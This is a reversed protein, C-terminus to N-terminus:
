RTPEVPSDDPLVLRVLRVLFVLWGSLRVRARQPFVPSDGPWGEAPQWVGGVAESCALM